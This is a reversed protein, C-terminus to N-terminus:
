LEPSPTMGRQKLRTLRNEFTHYATSEEKGNRRIWHISIPDGNDDEEKELINGKVEMCDYVNRTTPKPGIDKLAIRWAKVMAKGLNDLRAATPGKTFKLGKQALRKLTKAYGHEIEAWAQQLLENFVFIDKPYGHKDLLSEAKVVLPEIDVGLQKAHAKVKAIRDPPYLAQKWKKGVEPFVRSSIRAKADMRIEEGPLVGYRTQIIEVPKTKTPQKNKSM